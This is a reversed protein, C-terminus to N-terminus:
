NDPSEAKALFHIVLRLLSSLGELQGVFGVFSQLGDVRGSQLEWGRLNKSHATRLWSAGPRYCLVLLVGFCWCKTGASQQRQTVESLPLYCM